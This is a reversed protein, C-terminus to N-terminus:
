FFLIVSTHQFDSEFYCLKLCNGLINGQLNSYEDNFEEPINKPPEQNTVVCFNILSLITILKNTIEKLNLNAVSTDNMLILYYNTALQNFYQDLYKLNNLPNQSFIELYNSFYNKVYKKFKKFGKNKIIKKKLLFLFILRSLFTFDQFIVDSSRILSDIAVQSM